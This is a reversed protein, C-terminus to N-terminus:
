LRRVVEELPFRYAATAKCVSIHTQDAETHSAPDQGFRLMEVVSDLEALVVGDATFPPQPVHLIRLATDDHLARLFDSNPVLDTLIPVMARGFVGLIAILAGTKMLEASLALL